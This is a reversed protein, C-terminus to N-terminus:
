KKITRTVEAVDDYTTYFIDRPMILKIDITM